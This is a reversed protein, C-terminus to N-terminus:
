VVDDFDTTRAISARRVPRPADVPAPAAVGSGRVPGASGVPAAAGVTVPTTDLPTAEDDSYGAWSEASRAKRRDHIRAFQVAIEFLVILAAALAVMSYPDGSPNAVAAFVVLAFALGRRWKKLKSYPLVGVLNLALIILPVEFSVGFIVLLHIMFGFYEVGSLATVQAQDGVSLLFHFAHAVVFYALVAGSVFLVVASSVFGVAYRRENRHLGPSIFAWIQYFWFPSALIVGATLGVKLRLMLQDFVGTALLRCQGDHTLDARLNSPLSCYPERLLTALSEVPGIRYSYWFFGFVAGVFVFALAFLLRRRLEYLHEVVTMSGDPNVKARRQRPDLPIRM